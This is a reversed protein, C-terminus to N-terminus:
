ARGKRGGLERQLAPYRRYEDRIGELWKTGNTSRDVQACALALSAAHGYHRRRKNETVGAIRKEAATRMSRVVATRTAPDTPAQIGARRILDAVEPTTLRPEDRESLLNLEDFDREPEGPLEVGGFLSVFLPFLL